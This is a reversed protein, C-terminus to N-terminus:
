EASKAKNEREGFAGGEKGGAGRRWVATHLGSDVRM